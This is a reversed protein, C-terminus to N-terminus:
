WKANPYARPLYQMESLLHGLHETHFGNKSGTQMYEDNPIQLKAENLSENVLNYWLKKLSVNNVGIGSNLMKSDIDDMEFLEGTFM